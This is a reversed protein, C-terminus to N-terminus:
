TASLWVAAVVAVFAIIVGIMWCADIRETESFVNVPSLLSVIINM